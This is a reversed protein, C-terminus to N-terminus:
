ERSDKQPAQGEAAAPEGASTAPANAVNQLGDRRRSERRSELRHQRSPYVRVKKVRRPDADLIEIEFQGPGALFEGRVPM